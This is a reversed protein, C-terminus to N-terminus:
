YGCGKWPLFCTDSVAFSKPLSLDEPPPDPSKRRQASFGPSPPFGACLSPCRHDHMELCVQLLERM